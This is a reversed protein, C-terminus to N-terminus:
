FGGGQLVAEEPSPAEEEEPVPASEEEGMMPDEPMPPRVKEQMHAPEGLAALADPTFGQNQLKMDEELKAAKEPDLGKTDLKAKTKVGKQGDFKGTEPDFGMEAAEGITMEGLPTQILVANPDKRAMEILDAKYKEAKTKDHFVLSLIDDTTRDDEERDEEPLETTNRSHKADPSTVIDRLVETSDGGETDPPEITQAETELIQGEGGDQVPLGTAPDIKM